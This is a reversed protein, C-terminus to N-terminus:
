VITNTATEYASVIERGVDGTPLWANPTEADFGSSGNLVCPSSHIGTEDRYAVCIGFLDNRGNINGEQGNGLVYTTTGQLTMASDATGKALTGNAPLLYAAPNGIPMLNSGNQVIAHLQDNSDASCKVGLVNVGYGEDLYSAMIIFVAFEAPLGYPNGNGAFVQYFEKGYLFGRAQDAETASQTGEFEVESLPNALTFQFAAEATSAYIVLNLAEFDISDEGTENYYNTPIALDGRSCSLLYPISYKGDIMAKNAVFPNIKANNKVFQNFASMSSKEPQIVQKLFVDASKYFATLNNLKCRQVAQANTRPNKIKPVWTRTRQEGGARYFVAEGLKGSANGWFLSRKSMLCFFM